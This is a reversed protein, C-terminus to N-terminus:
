PEEYSYLCYEHSDCKYSLGGIPSSPDILNKIISKFAMPHIEFTSNWDCNQDRKIYVISVREKAYLFDSLQSNWISNPDMGGLIICVRASLNNVVLLQHLASGACGIILAPKLDQIINVLSRPGIQEPYIIKVEYNNCADICELENTWRKSANNNLKGRSLVLIRTRQPAYTLQLVPFGIKLMEHKFSRALKIFNVDKLCLYKVSNNFNEVNSEEMSINALRNSLFSLGYIELLEVAWLPFSSVILKLQSKPYMLYIAILLPIIDIIFHGFHFSYSGRSSWEACLPYNPKNLLPATTFSFKTRIHLNNSTSASRIEEFIDNFCHLVQLDSNTLWFDSDKHFLYFCRYDSKTWIKRIIGLSSIQSILAIPQSQDHYKIECNQLLESPLSSRKYNIM